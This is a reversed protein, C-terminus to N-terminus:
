KYFQVRSILDYDKAYAKKFVNLWQPVQLLNEWLDVSTKFNETTPQENIPSPPEVSDFGKGDLFKKMKESLTHDCWFYVANSLDIGNVFDLQPATHEDRLLVHFKDFISAPGPKILRAPLEDIM